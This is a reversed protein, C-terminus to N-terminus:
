FACLLACVRTKPAEVRFISRFRLLVFTRGLPSTARSSAFLRLSRARMPSTASAFSFRDLGFVSGNENGVGFLGVLVGAMLDGGTGHGAIVEGLDTMPEVQLFVTLRSKFIELERPILEREGSLAVGEVPLFELEVRGFECQIVVDGRELADVGVIVEVVLG